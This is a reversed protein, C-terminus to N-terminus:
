TVAKYFQVYTCKEKTATTANQHKTNTLFQTRSNDM